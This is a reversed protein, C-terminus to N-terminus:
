ISVVLKINMEAMSALSIAIRCLSINPTIEQHLRRSKM